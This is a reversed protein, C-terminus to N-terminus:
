NAESRVLGKRFEGVMASFMAPESAALNVMLRHAAVCVEIPTIGLIKAATEIEQASYDQYQITVEIKGKKKEFKM